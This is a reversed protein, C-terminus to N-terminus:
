AAEWSTTSWWRRQLSPNVFCTESSRMAFRRPAICDARCTHSSRNLVREIPPPRVVDRDCHPPRECFVIVLQLGSSEAERKHKLTALLFIGKMQRRNKALRKVHERPSTMRMPFEKFPPEIGTDFGRAIGLMLAAFSKELQDAGGEM